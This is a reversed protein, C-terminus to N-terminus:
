LWIDIDRVEGVAALVALLYNNMLFSDLISSNIM